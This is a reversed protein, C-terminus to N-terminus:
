KLAERYAKLDPPGEPAATQAFAPSFVLACSVFVVAHRATMAVGRFRDKLQLEALGCGARRRSFSSPHLRVPTALRAPCMAPPHVGIISSNTGNWITTQPLTMGSGSCVSSGTM